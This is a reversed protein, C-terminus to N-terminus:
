GLASRRKKLEASLRARLEAHAPDGALNTLQFPDAQMDFLLAQQKPSPTLFETYSYRESRLQWWTRKANQLHCASLVPEDPEKKALLAASLDRGHVSTFPVGALGAVTPFIDIQSVPSRMVRPEIRDLWRFGIPIRVSEEYPKQKLYRGHSGALDGHDSTFVVITRRDIGSAKLGQRLRQIEPEMSLIAGYYNRLFARAGPDTKKPNMVAPHPGEAFSPVNGRLKLGAPEVGYPFAEPFDADWDRRWNRPPHPPVYSVMLLFPRDKWKEMVALAQTTQYTPEFQNPPDPTHPTPDSGEFWQSHRYEYRENYGQFHDEFGYLHNPHQQRSPGLHWKGVYGAAWGAKRFATAVTQVGKKLQRDNTPVGVHDPYMGTLLSARAPGCLPNAAIGHEAKVGETLLADMAPTQINPDGYTSLSCARLQDLLVILVNPREPTAAPKSSGGCAALAAAGALFGRREM